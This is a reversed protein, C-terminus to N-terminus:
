QKKKSALIKISDFYLGENWKQEDYIPPYKMGLQIFLRVNVFRLLHEYLELFDLLVKYDVESDPPIPFEHPVLWLVKEGKVKKPFKEGM